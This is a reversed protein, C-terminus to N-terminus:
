PRQSSATVDGAAIAVALKGKVRGSYLARLADAARELPFVEDVAPRLQGAAAFEALAELDRHNESSVLMTLRQRVLRSMAAARMLRGVGLTLRNGGVGGVVVLTGRETLARRLRRLPARGGIDVIADYRQGIRTPDDRGYDIVHDAGLSRVFDVKGASCVGTVEAGLAKAIQVAYSGVGGSAGTILVRQGPQVQAKDRVAQLAALGSVAVTAAAVVPLAEPRHALKDERAAAFEALSGSAIGFVEDGPTFCTVAAGVREVTGAVDLGPVPSRPGRWGFGMSRGVARMIWPLGALLYLTGRDVGAAGVRVLVEGPKIEPVPRTTLALVDPPGYHEHAIARMTPSRSGDLAFTRTASIM